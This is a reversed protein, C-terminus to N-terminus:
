CVFLQWYDSDTVNTVNSKLELDDCEWRDKSELNYNYEGDKYFPSQFLKKENKPAKQFSWKGTNACGEQNNGIEGRVCGWKDSPTQSLMSTDTPLRIFLDQTATLDNWSQSQGTFFKFAKIGNTTM